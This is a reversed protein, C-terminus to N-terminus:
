FLAAVAAIAVAFTTMASAGDDADTPSAVDDADADETFTLALAANTQGSATTDHAYEVGGRMTAAATKFATLLAVAAAEDTSAAPTVKAQIKFTRATWEQKTADMSLEDCLTGAASPATHTFTGFPPEGGDCNVWNGSCVTPSDAGGFVDQGWAAKVKNVDTVGTARRAYNKVVTLEGRWSMYQMLLICDSQDNTAGPYCMAVAVDTQKTADASFKGTVTYDYTVQLAKQDVQVAVKM